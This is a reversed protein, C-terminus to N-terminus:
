PTSGGGSAAGEQAVLFWEDALPVVLQGDVADSAYLPRYETGHRLMVVPRVALAAIAANVPHDPGYISAPQDIMASTRRASDARDWRSIVDSARGTEASFTAWRPHAKWISSNLARLAEVAEQLTPADDTIAASM